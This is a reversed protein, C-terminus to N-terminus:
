SAQEVELGDFEVTFEICTVLSATTTGAGQLDAFFVTAFFPKTPNTSVLAGVTDDMAPRGLNIEPSYTSSITNPINENNTIETYTDNSEMLAHFSAPFSSSQVSTHVGTVYPGGPAATSSQRSFTASLRSGLVRYNQYLAAYRDFYLPQDGVGSFDPDFLSNMRYTHSAVSAAVSSLQTLHYYRLITIIKKPFGFQLKGDVGPIMHAQRQNGDDRESESKMSTDMKARKGSREASYWFHPSPRKRGVERNRIHEYLSM